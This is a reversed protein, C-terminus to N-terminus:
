RPQLRHLAPLMILAGVVTAILGAVAEVVEAAFGSTPEYVAMPVMVVIMPIGALASYAVWNWLGKAAKRPVFAQLVGATAGILMGVVGTVVIGVALVAVRRFGTMHLQHLERAEDLWAMAALLGILLGLLAYLILWARLPFLPLKQRLVVGILYGFILLSLSSTAVLVIGLVLLDITEVHGARIGSWRIIPDTAVPVMVLVIGGLLHAKIWQWSINGRTAAPADSV